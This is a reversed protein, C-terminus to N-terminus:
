ALANDAGPYLARLLAQTSARLHPALSEALRTQAEASPAPTEAVGRALAHLAQEAGQLAARVAGAWHPPAEGQVYGGRGRGFHAVALYRLLAAEAAALVAHTSMGLWSSETGRLRNIGRALGAGGLAGLLGGALLGGGLTLGGTALDAKLGALAGSLAGGVIAAGGEDVKRHPLTLAAVRELIVREPQGALGHLALLEVTSRRELEALHDHLRQQATAEAEDGGGAARKGLSKLRGAFGAPAEITRRACAMAALGEALIRMAQALQEHQRQRWAAALSRMPQQQEAPLARALAALLTSEHVWCRAFADLPLVERVGPWNALRQRWAEVEAAEVEAARPAGLQNLLVLVPRGTWALLEMESHLWAPQPEAASVLYLVVDSADRVHRMAQQSGWFARDRWRDWLQSLLWGLPTGSARMRAALRVSDGFGPTDWLLLREGTPATILEHCEPTLTVHPADRVEGVDRALLTRALTTKGVNTHAVLSLSVTTGSVPTGEGKFPEPILAQSRGPASM